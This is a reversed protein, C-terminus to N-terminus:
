SLLEDGLDLAQPLADALVAVARDVFQTPVVRGQPPQERLCRVRQGGHRVPRLEQLPTDSVPLREILLRPIGRPRPLREAPSRAAGSWSEAGSGAETTRPATQILLLRATLRGCIPQTRLSYRGGSPGRSSPLQDIAFSCRIAASTASPK